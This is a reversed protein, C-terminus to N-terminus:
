KRHRTQWARRATSFAQSLDVSRSFRAGFKNLARLLAIPLLKSNILGSLLFLWLQGGNTVCRGAAYVDWLTEHWMMVAPLYRAVTSSFFVCAQGVNKHREWRPLHLCLTRGFLNTLSQYILSKLGSGCFCACLAPSHVLFHVSICIFAIIKESICHHKKSKLTMNTKNISGAFM